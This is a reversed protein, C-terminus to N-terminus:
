GEAYQLYEEAFSSCGELTQLKRYERCVYMYTYIYIYVYMLMYDVEFHYAQM